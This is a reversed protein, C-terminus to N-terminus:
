PRYQTKSAFDSASMTQNERDPLLSESDNVPPLHNRMALIAAVTLALTISIGTFFGADVLIAGAFASMVGGLRGMSQAWGVGVARCQTPYVHAAVAWLTVQIALICFGGVALGIMTAASSPPTASVLSRVYLMALVAVIGLAAQIPRSGLRAILWSALLSGAVGATNFVFLCRLSTQLDFGLATLVVPAWNYFCYVAFLNTIFALWLAGTDFRLERSFIVSVEQRRMPGSAPIAFRQGADFQKRGVVRNLVTALESAREPRGALFRASEPLCYYLIGWALLPLAGGIGFMARWGLAPIVEAAISAGLMGGIPVGIIAAAITQGRVRPPAFEAMLATANPLAGGLGIGTLLRLVVLMPVSEVSATALTGLAFCLVSLLM